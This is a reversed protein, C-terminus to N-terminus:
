WDVAMVYTFRVVLALSDGQYAPPLPLFPQCQQVAKLAIPDMFDNRTSVTVDGPAAPTAPPPELELVSPTGDRLITLKVGTSSRPEVNPFSGSPNLKHWKANVCSQLMMLYNSVNKEDSFQIGVHMHMTAPGTPAMQAAANIAVFLFVVAVIRKM